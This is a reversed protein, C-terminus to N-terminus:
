NSVVPVGKDPDMCFTTGPPCSVGPIPNLPECINIYFDPIGDEENQTLEDDPAM